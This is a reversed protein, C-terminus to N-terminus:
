LGILVFLRPSDSLANDDETFDIGSLNAGFIYNLRNQVFEKYEVSVSVYNTMTVLFAEDMMRVATKEDRKATSSDVRTDLFEKDIPEKILENAKSFM